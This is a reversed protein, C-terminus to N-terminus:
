LRLAPNGLFQEKRPAPAATPTVAPGDPTTQFLPVLIRPGMVPVSGIEPAADPTEMSAVDAQLSAAAAEAQALQAERSAQIRQRGLQCLSRFYTREATDMRRYLRILRAEAVPDTAADRFLQPLLRRYRRRQWDADVISDVLYQEVPTGPLFHLYYETTLQALEAPDEGPLIESEADIGTKLANLRCAARGAPSTPGTSKLANRRNAEIQAPSAM